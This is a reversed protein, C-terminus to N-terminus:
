HCTVKLSSAFKGVRTNNLNPADQTFVDWQGLYKSKRYLIAECGPAVRISLARDHGMKTDGLNYVDRTFTQSFGQYNIGSYLTVGSTSQAPGSGFGGGPGRGGDAERIYLKQNIHKKGCVDDGWIKLKSPDKPNNTTWRVQAYYRNGNWWDKIVDGGTASWGGQEFSGSVISSYTYVTGFVVTEPGEIKGFSGCEQRAGLGNGPARSEGLTVYLRESRDKGCGDIGSVKVKMPDNPDMKQWTVTGYYINGDSRDKLLEGGTVSWGKRQFSGKVRVSYTFTQGLEINTPGNIKDFSGKQCAPVSAVAAGFLLMAFVIVMFKKM